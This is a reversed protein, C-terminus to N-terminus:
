KIWEGCERIRLTLEDPIWVKRDVKGYNAVDVTVGMVHSAHLFVSSSIVRHTAYRLMCFARNINDWQRYGVANEGTDYVPLDPLNEKIWESSDWVHERHYEVDTHRFIFGKPYTDRIYEKIDNEDEEGIYIEPQKNELVLGLERSTMDIKHEGAVHSMHLSNGMWDYKAGLNIFNNSNEIMTAQFDGQWPNPVAMLEGIYPCNDLLHSTEVQERCMLDTVYGMEHLKRLHPTLMIVDGLGHHYLLLAKKTV